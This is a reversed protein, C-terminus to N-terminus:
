NSLIFHLCRKIIMLRLAAPIQGLGHSEKM